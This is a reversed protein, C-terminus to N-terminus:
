ETRDGPQAGAAWGGRKTRRAPEREEAFRQALEYTQHGEKSWAETLAEAIEDARDPAMAASWGRPGDTILHRLGLGTPIVSSLAEGALEREAKSLRVMVPEGSSEQPAVPVPEDSYDDDKREPRGRRVRGSPDAVTREIQSVLKDLDNDGTLEVGGSTTYRGHGDRPRPEAHEVVGRKTALKVAVWAKATEPLWLPRGHLPYDPAPLDTSLTPQGERRRRCARKHYQRLTMVSLGVMKALQNLDVYQPTDLARERGEPPVTYTLTDFAVCPLPM